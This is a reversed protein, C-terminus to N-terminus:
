LVIKLKLKKAAESLSKDYTMLPVNLRVALELYAADYATLDHAKAISFVDIKEMLVATSSEIIIPYHSIIELIEQATANDLRRRKLANLLINMFEHEFISPVHIKLKDISNILDEYKGSDENPLFWSAMVSADIVAHVM